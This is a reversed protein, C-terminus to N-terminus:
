WYWFPLIHDSSSWKFAVIYSIQVTKSEKTAITVGIRVDDAFHQLKETQYPTLPEPTIVQCVLRKPSIKLHRHLYYDMDELCKEFYKNVNSNLIKYTDDASGFAHQIDCLQLSLEDYGAYDAMSKLTHIDNAISNICNALYDGENEKNGGMEPVFVVNRDAHMEHLETLMDIHKFPLIVFEVNLHGNYSPSSRLGIDVLSVNVFYDKRVGTVHVGETRKAYSVTIVLEETSQPQYAFSPAEDDSFLVFRTDPLDSCKKLVDEGCKGFGILTTKMVAGGYGKTNLKKGAQQLNYCLQAQKDLNIEVKKNSITWYFGGM